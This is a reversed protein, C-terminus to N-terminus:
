SLQVGAGQPGSVPDTEWAFTMDEVPVLVSPMEPTARGGVNEIFRTTFGLDLAPSGAVETAEPRNAAIVGPALEATQGEGLPRPDQSPTAPPTEPPELELL